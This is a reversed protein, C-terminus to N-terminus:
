GQQHPRYERVMEVVAKVNEVPTQPIIGHGLNFIHGPHRGAGELVAHVKDRLEGIPALLAIPDMNGQIARDLGVLKRAHGIDVRWDVGMVDGGAEAFADLFAGNGTGFHIVPVGLERIRGILERSHPMAFRRYDAPGLAGAWSDFVQIAAAGSAVQSAAFPALVSVIREMLDRWAGQDGWMLSKTRAYFRSSGGEIMYSALTFPAGVFGILPVCDAMNKRALAISEGVYGLEASNRTELRRIDALCRVPPSIRPGHGSVFEVSLGMVEAPLLLDAFVIAADVDLAEIPQQTVEAALRPTKCIELISHSRRLRRYQPMYRGAQRMFWVPTTDTPKRACAELFRERM